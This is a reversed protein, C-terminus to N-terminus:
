VRATIAGTRVRRLDFRPVAWALLTAPTWHGADNPPTLGLVHFIALLNATAREDDIAPAHTQKSLKQGSADVLVPLHGYSPVTLGLRQMLYIQRATNDLLDGGRIVHSIAGGGDDVATALQYAIQGDRRRVVFDGCTRTLVAVQDGRILDHFRIPQDDVRIRLAAGAVPATQRRCTGPYIPEGALMQRTCTCYFLLGQDSLTELAAEYDPIRDRQHLVPGDWHLDHAHLTQRIAAEAGPAVRPTDLDDIRLWWQLRRAQADLYSATAALLSGQHLPGTPSPAFRGAHQIM